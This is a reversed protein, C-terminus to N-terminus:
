NQISLFSVYLMVGYVLVMGTLVGWVFPHKTRM